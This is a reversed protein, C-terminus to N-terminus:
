HNFDCSQEEATQKAFFYAWDDAFRIPMKNGHIDLYQVGSQENCQALIEALASDSERANCASFIQKIESMDIKTNM